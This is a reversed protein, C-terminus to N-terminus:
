RAWRINPDADLADLVTDVQSYRYYQPEEGLAVALQRPGDVEQTRAKIAEVASKPLRLTIAQMPETHKYRERPM